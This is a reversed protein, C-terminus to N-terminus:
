KLNCFEPLSYIDLNQYVENYPTPDVEYQKIKLLCQNSNTISIGSSKRLESYGPIIWVHLIETKNINFGLCIYYDPIYSNRHVTFHWRYSNSGSDKFMGSSKVNITDYTRSKLDYPAYFHEITNCKECDKLVEYVIHETIIGIGLNSKPNLKGHLHHRPNNICRNCIRKNNVISWLNDLTGNGCISCTENGTLVTQIQNIPLGAEILANNWSGFMNKFIGPKPFSKLHKIDNTSPTRELKQALNQLLNILEIKTYTNQNIPLKACKLANNWTKFHRQYVSISIYGNRKNMDVYRPVRGNEKVFKHLESILEAESYKKM